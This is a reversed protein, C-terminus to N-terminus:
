KVSFTFAVSSSSRLSFSTIFSRRPYDRLIVLKIGANEFAPKALDGNEFDLVWTPASTLTHDVDINFVSVSTAGVVGQGQWSAIAANVAVSRYEAPIIFTGGRYDIGNHSFDVGDKVKSDSIVWYIPVNYNKLMDYILGYPKLGNAYTQPTIGMNIIFSGVPIDKLAFPPLTLYNNLHMEKEVKNGEFPPITYNGNLQPIGVFLCFIFASLVYWVVRQFEIFSNLNIRKISACLNRKPDIPRRTKM